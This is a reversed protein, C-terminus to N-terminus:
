ILRQGSSLGNPVFGSPPKPRAELRAQKDIRNAGAFFSEVLRKLGGSCVVKSILVESKDTYGVPLGFIGNPVKVKGALKGIVIIM